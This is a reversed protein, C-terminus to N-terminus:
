QAEDFSNLARLDRAKFRGPPAARRRRSKRPSTPAIQVLRAPMRVIVPKRSEIMRRIGAKAESVTFMEM